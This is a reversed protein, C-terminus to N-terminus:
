EIVADAAGLLTHPIDLGLARATPLNIVLEFKTLQVVPLESPKAGNLIRSTYVGLQRFTETLSTGYSMLGGAEAFERLFYVTPIALRTALIVLQVRRSTFFPDAGVLLADPRSRVLTAFAVEIEHSDSARVIDIQLGMASAASIVDKTVTEFNANAPNVLLGIRGAKPVIEHLLGLQKPGLEAVFNNVGTANGGPRALSAVLGLRVPDDSVTFVIPISATAAKAAVAATITNAVIVAVQRRVLEAAMAPLRDYRGEAWRYEIAVNQSEIYGSESLTKRFEALRSASSEPTDPLLFGVLPTALQQARAALPWAAAASGLLTIFERRKM